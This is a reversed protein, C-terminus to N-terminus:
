AGNEFVALTELAFGTWIAVRIVVIAGPRIIRPWEPRCEEKNANYDFFGQEGKSMPDGRVEDNPHAAATIGRAFNSSSSSNMRPMRESGVM